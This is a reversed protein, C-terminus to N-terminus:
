RRKILLASILVLLLTLGWKSTSPVNVAPTGEWGAVRALLWWFAAGKRACNLGQSHACGSCASALVSYQASPNAAVWDQAWNADTGEEIYGNGNSDYTCNDNCLLPMYHTAADPDYSEIDAFDFLIKNNAQCFARIQDNRQNLNGPDGTGDLHGTMYIFTVDPYDQELQDMANLYTNIGSVTNDSCGGCWSWIVVNRDNNALELMAITDDRWALDGMHGLDGDAWHDNMFVGPNLGWGTMDFEWIGGLVSEFASIGDILQSGHSTHGYGVRLNAQATQIWSSPIQTYNTCTHDIIIPDQGHVSQILGAVLCVLVASLVKLSKM